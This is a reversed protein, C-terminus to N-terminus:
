TSARNRVSCVDVSTKVTSVARAQGSVLMTSEVYRSVSETAISFHNHAFSAFIVLQRVPSQVGNRTGCRSTSIDTPLHPASANEEFLPRHRLLSYEDGVFLIQVSGDTEANGVEM